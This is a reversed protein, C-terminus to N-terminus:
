DKKTVSAVGSVNKNVTKPNGSYSVRGVGSLTVDLQESAYVDISAAGSSSVSAKEAHLGEADIMGAGSSQIDVSKTEGSIKVKAAGSSHIAFKDNKVEAVQFNGAGKASVSVLNSVSIRLAVLRRSEYARENRVYLVGDRVDTQILPLINDDAEIQFNLPQQCTVEIDYAGETDIANFSSLERTETKRVGSGKVGRGMHRCGAVILFIMLVALNFSAFKRM